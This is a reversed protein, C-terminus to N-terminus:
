GRATDADCEGWLYALVVFATFPTPNFCGYALVGFAAATMEKPYQRLWVKRGLYVWAAAGVAGYFVLVDLALSHSSEVSYFSRHGWIVPDRFAMFADSFGDPGWGLLPRERIAKLATLWIQVRTEDSLFRSAGLTLLLGAALAAGAAAIARRFGFRYRALAAAYGLFGARSGTLVVAAAVLGRVVWGRDWTLPAALALMCGLFPPSGILGYARGNPIPGVTPIGFTVQTVAALATLVAGLLVAGRAGGRSSLGAEYALWFLLVGPLAMSFSNAHGALAHIPSGAGLSSAAASAVVALFARRLPPEPPASRGGLGWFVGSAIFLFKTTQYAGPILPFYVVYAGLIILAAPANM